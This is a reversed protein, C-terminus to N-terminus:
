ELWMKVMQQSPLYETQLRDHEFRLIDRVQYCYYAYEVEGKRLSTLVSNIFLVYYHWTTSGYYEIDDDSHEYKKEFTDRYRLKYDQSPTVLAKMLLFKNQWQKNTMTSSFRGSLHSTQNYRTEQLDRITLHQTEM